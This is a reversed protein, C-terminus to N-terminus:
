ATSRRSWLMNYAKTLMPRLGLTHKVFGVVSASSLASGFVGIAEVYTVHYYEIGSLVAIIGFVKPVIPRYESKIPLLETVVGTAVALIFCVVAFTM